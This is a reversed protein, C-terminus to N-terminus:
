VEVGTIRLDRPQEILFSFTFEQKTGPAIETVWKLLNM